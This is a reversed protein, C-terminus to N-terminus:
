DLDAEAALAEAAGPDRLTAARLWRQAWCGDRWALARGLADPGAAADVHATGDCVRWPVATHRGELDAVVLPDHVAYSGHACRRPEGASVVAFGALESALRLDLLDAVEAALALPAPVVALPGLLPLLDPADVVVADAADVAVAAGDRVARVRVPPALSPDVPDSALRAHLRRVMARDVPRDSGLRALLEAAGGPEALVSDIGDRVGLARLLAPDLEAPAEDYLGILDSGPLALEAPRRGGLVPARALWWRTYSPVSVRRGDSLLVLAPETLLRRPLLPLAREWADEGVLELDRVAVLETLVPPAADAPEADAPSRPLGAGVDALWDAEGDLDHDAAAPDLPVDAERLVAFGDLVGVATLVAAEWRELLQPAVMGLPADAAIIGAFVSGPLVLEGAPYFEGDAGPLALDALWPQEGPAVGAAAVLALVADAIPGPDEADYSAAVAAQLRPEHLLSRATAPVAGLVSLLPAVADPHVVRLELAQIGAPDLGDGPLLLGRPGRVLRGDALPVPLAGLADREPGGLHGQALALYLQRWWGPSRDLGALADVVDSLGLRRVGLVALPATRAAWEAPLLNPLVEALVGTVAPGLDLAVADRPRVTLTLDEALPLFSTEALAALIARRLAGDLEGAALGAPVLDLVAPSTAVDRVLDAYGSATYGVLADALPGGAVRRRGSDLPWSGILVAPLSLPEDTLTPARLLAAVSSPLPVPEASGDDRNGSLPVACTLEYGTRTRDETPRDTFLAPDLRGSRRTVRWRTLEGDDCILVDSGSQCATMTRGDIQAQALAPLTLLLVPDLNALEGRVAAIAAEDRLPLAVATDYGAPPAQRDPLPLRLVPIAEGRSALEDVLTPIGRLMALAEPLSWRVGGSSSHVAPADSVTRVAAFGVGFRGAAGADARKASARLTCLSAVGAADLPAGSNAAVL